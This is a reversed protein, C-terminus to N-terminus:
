TQKAYWCRVCKSAHPDCALDIIRRYWEIRAASGFMRVKRCPAIPEVSVTLRSNVVEPYPLTRHVIGAPPLIVFSLKWHFHIVHHDDADIIMHAFRGLHEVLMESAISIGSRWLEM